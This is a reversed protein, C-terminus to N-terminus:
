KTKKWQNFHKRTKQIYEFDLENNYAEQEFSINKYAKSPGNVFLRIIWEFFYILYFIIGGIFLQLPPCWKLFTTFDKIQEKHINEHNIMTLIYTRKNKDYLYSEYDKRFFILGFLMMALYGVFPILGNVYLKTGEYDIVKM